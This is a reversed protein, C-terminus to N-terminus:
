VLSTVWVDELANAVLEESFWVFGGNRWGTGWSNLVKFLCSGGAVDPETYGVITMAHGGIPKGEIRSLTLPGNDQTFAQDVSMGFVVPHRAELASMIAQIRREGTSFIRYYGKLGRMANGQQYARVSPRVNVRAPDYKWASEPCRGVRKLAYAYTRLYTGSDAWQGGYEARANYYGFLRSGLVAATYGRWRAELLLAGEWAHAVCSSLGGQNLVTAKESLDFGKGHPQELALRDFGWDATGPQPAYRDAARLGLTPRSPARNGLFNFM